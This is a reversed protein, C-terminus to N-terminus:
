SGRAISTECIVAAGLLSLNGGQPDFPVSGVVSASIVQGGSSDAAFGGSSITAGFGTGGSSVFEGAGSSIVTGTATGGAEVIQLGGSFIIASSASGYVDQEGGSILAGLDTGVASTNLLTTDSAFGGSLVETASDSAGGGIVSASITTGGSAVVLHGGSLVTAGFDAGGSSATETGGGSIAIGGDIGGASVNLTGSVTTTDAIGGSLVNITGGSLVVDNNNTRGSSILDIQGNSVIITPM